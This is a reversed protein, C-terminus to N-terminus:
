PKVIVLNPLENRDGPRVPFHEALVAGCQKLAKELCAQWQGTKPGELMTAVVESWIEPKLKSAIGKDALVVAQHEFMSLFLLIGTNGSTAGLGARYFELEARMLAHARLKGPWTFNRVFFPIRGLLLGLAGSFALVVALLLYEHVHPLLFHRELWLFVLGVFMAGIVFKASAPMSRQVIMLRIEGSTKLELEGIVKELQRLEEPTVPVKFKGAVVQAEEVLDGAVAPGDEEAVVALDAAL